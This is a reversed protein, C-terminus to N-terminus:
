QERSLKDAPQKGSEIWPLYIRLCMCLTASARRRLVRNLAWSTSRGKASSYAVPQNDQLSIVKNRYSGPFSALLHVLKTVARGEGLAIHDDIFCRGQAIESWAAEDFMELPLLIFPKSPKVTKEPFKLGSFDGDLRSISRGPAEGVELCARTLEMSSARGVIGYGGHDASNAGMADTAFCTPAFSSFMDYYLFPAVYAM